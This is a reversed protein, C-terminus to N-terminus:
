PTDKTDRPQTTLPRQSLVEEAKPLLVENEKAIHTGLVWELERVTREMERLFSSERTQAPDLRRALEKLGEISQWVQQHERRYVALPGIESCLADCFLWYCLDPIEGQVQVPGPGALPGELLSFLVEEELRFHEPLEADLFELVRRLKEQAVRADGAKLDDVLEVLRELNSLGTEHGKRLTDLLSAVEM